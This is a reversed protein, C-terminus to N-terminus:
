RGDPASYVDLMWYVAGALVILVIWFKLEHGAPKTAEADAVPIFPPPSPALELRPRGCHWCADFNGQSEEGCRRCRWGPDNASDDADISALIAEAEAADDDNAVWLEVWCESPPLAGALGLLDRRSVHSVIGARELLDRRQDVSLTDRASYVRKM